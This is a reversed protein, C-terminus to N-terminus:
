PRADLPTSSLFTIYIIFTEHESDLMAVAFEKKRILEVRRTTLFAKKTTYIRWWLKRNLFDVNTSSLTFFLMGFVVKPSINAVLFTEEFFKLLNAKDMVSFVAVVM